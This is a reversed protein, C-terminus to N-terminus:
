AAPDAVDAPEFRVTGSALRTEGAILDFAATGPQRGTFVVEFDREPSLVALFKVAPFGTVRVAGGAHHAIAAAVADLMVVGPVVPHGPFHGALAPHSAPIRM